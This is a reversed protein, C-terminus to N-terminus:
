SVVLRYAARLFGAVDVLVELQVVFGISEPLRYLSGLQRRVVRQSGGSVFFWFAREQSLSDKSFFRLTSKKGLVMCESELLRLLWLDVLNDSHGRLSPGVGYLFAGLLSSVCSNPRLAPVISRISAM